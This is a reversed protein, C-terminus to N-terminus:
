IRRSFCDKILDAKLFRERSLLRKQHMNAQGSEGGSTLNKAAGNAYNGVGTKAKKQTILYEKFAQPLCDWLETASFRRQIFPDLVAGILHNPYQQCVQYCSINEPVPDTAPPFLDCDKTHSKMPISMPGKVKQEKKKNDKRQEQDEERSDGDEVEQAKKMSIKAQEREKKGPKIQTRPVPQESMQSTETVPCDDDDNHHDQAVNEVDGAISTISTEQHDSPLLSKMGDRADNEAQVSASQESAYVNNRIHHLKISNATLAVEITDSKMNATVPAM